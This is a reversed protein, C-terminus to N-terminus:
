ENNLSLKEWTNLRHDEEKGDFIAMHFFTSPGVRGISGFRMEMEGFVQRVEEITEPGGAGMRNNSIRLRQLCIWKELGNVM